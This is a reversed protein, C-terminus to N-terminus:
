DAPRRGAATAPLPRGSRQWRRAPICRVVLPEGPDAARPGVADSRGNHRCPWSRGCRPGHRAPVDLVGQAAMPQQIVPARAHRDGPDRRHVQFFEFRALRQVLCLRDRCSRIACHCSDALNPLDEKLSKRLSARLPGKAPGASRCASSARIMVSAVELPETGSPTGSSYQTIHESSSNRPM